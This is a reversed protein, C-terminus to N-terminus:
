ARGTPCDITAGSLGTARNFHGVTRALGYRCCAMTTAGPLLRDHQNDDRREGAVQLGREGNASTARDARHRWWIAGLRIGAFRCCYDNGGARCGLM